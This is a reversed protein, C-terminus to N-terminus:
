PDGTADTHGTVVVPVGAAAHGAIMEVVPDLDAQAVEPLEASGHGFGGVTRSREVLDNESESAQPVGPGDRVAAEAGTTHSENDPQPTTAAEASSAPTAAHAAPASLTAGNATAAMTQLPGRLRRRPARGALRAEVEVGLAL